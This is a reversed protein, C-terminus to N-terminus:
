PVVIDPNYDDNKAAYDWEDIAVGWSITAKGKIPTGPLPDEPDHVGIGESYNLTYVYRKGAKWDADVPIAAWGYEKVTIDEGAIYLQTLAADSFYEGEKEGPYLRASIKGSKDVAYPIVTMGYPNGIYPYLQEGTASDAVRMLVSFYMKDTTYPISSINSDALGAWKSNVTPLVMACGGLGMISAANELSNHEANNIYYIRDASFGNDPTDTSNGYLYEVKDNVPNEEAQWQNATTTVGSFIFTGEVVPNGIRVGAIEFDYSGSAGWARLEVQAMQHHFALEIGSTFDKWREGSTEATIFDFQRSIDQNVRVRGLGYRIDSLSTIDTTNNILNFFSVGPQNEVAKNGSAMVARSPSFAIFKLPGGDNPWSRPGESPLSVYVTGASPSVSRIFTADEFYPSVIGSNDKKVDGTNFCTVQFSELRDLTMDNARSTAIDPLSTKFYIEGDAWDYVDPKTAEESCSAVLVFAGLAFCTVRIINM